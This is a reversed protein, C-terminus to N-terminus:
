LREAARLRASRSAPNATIEAETPVVVHSTLNKLIEKHERIFLKVPRDELSHFSICVVRGEPKLLTPINTLFSTINDLEHNVAIRLAQFVKTAQHIRQGPQKSVAQKVIDALQLTTTIKKKRRYEVIARAIRRARFEEGFAYLLDALESEPANNVIDAATVRFHGPSMRMDLPTDKYLSFGAQTAIQFRSTGFDALIGAVHTIEKKKLLAPLQSFNGWITDFRDPFAEKLAPANLDIAHMDWDCGIVRCTPEAELIARSHGGGGFTADIYVEHPRVNLYTVAEHLLVTTHYPAQTADPADARAGIELNADLNTEPAETQNRAHSTRPSDQFRKKKNSLSNSM